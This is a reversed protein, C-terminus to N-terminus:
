PKPTDSETTERLAKRWPMDHTSACRQRASDDTEVEVFLVAEANEGYPGQLVELGDPAIVLSCGICKRGAWPGGTIPGVSSVGIIWMSFDRAVPMYVERWVDGYPSCSQNHDAPVAWACPSVIMDAGMWGLSRTLIQGTAFADACIMLGLTGLETQVVNLSNGHNYYEHAISLENLKRHKCLIEGRPDIIIGANYVRDGDRETLGACVYIGHKAAAAGLRRAPEGGPVPEALDRCSPHTWGVDMAEPLIALKAGAAAASGILYEARALNEQMEGGTVRMQILAVRHKM